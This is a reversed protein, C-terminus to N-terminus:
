EMPSQNVAVVIVLSMYIEMLFGFWKIIGVSQIVLIHSNLGNV